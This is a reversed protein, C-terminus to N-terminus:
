LDYIKLKKHNGDNELISKEGEMTKFDELLRKHKAELERHV